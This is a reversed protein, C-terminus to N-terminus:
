KYVVLKGTVIETEGFAVRCTYVGKALSIISITFERDQEDPRLPHVSVLKGAMDFIRLEAQEPITRNFAFTAKDTTPNPYITMELPGCNEVYVTVTDWTTIFKFDTVQLVYTTTKTPVVSFLAQKSLTDTTNGPLFWFYEYQELDHTGLTTADGLCLLRDEGAGATYVPANCPYVSIADFFYYSILGVTTDWLQAPHFFREVEMSKLAKTGLSFFQEGGKAIYTTSIRTWNETDNLIGTHIDVSPTDPFTYTVLSTLLTDKTFYVEIQQIAFNSAKPSIIIHFNVCYVSDKMLPEALKTQIVEGRGGLFKAYLVLGAYASGHFADQSVSYVNNPVCWWDYPTECCCAHYLEIESIHTLQNYTPNVTDINVSFTAMWDKALHIDTRDEPCFYIDEFSGNSVLNQATTDSTFLFFSLFLPLAFLM